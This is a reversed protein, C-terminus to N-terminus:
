YDSVIKSQINESALKEKLTVAKQQSEIDVILVVTLNGKTRTATKYGKLSLKKEFSRANEQSSFAGVQLAYRKKVQDAKQEKVPESESLLEKQEEKKESSIIPQPETESTVFPEKKFTEKKIDQSSTEKSSKEDESIVVQEEKKEFESNNAEPTFTKSEAEMETTLSPNETKEVKLKGSSMWSIVVILFTLLIVIAIIWVLNSIQEKESM